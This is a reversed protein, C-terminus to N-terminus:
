ANPTVTNIAGSIFGFWHHTAFVTTILVFTAAPLIRRVRRAYFSAISRGGRSHRERLPVSIIVFGSIVVFNDVGFFGAHVGPMGAHFLVVLLM